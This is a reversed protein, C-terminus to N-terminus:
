ITWNNKAMARVKYEGNELELVLYLTTWDMGEFKPDFGKFHFAVLTGTGKDEMLTNLSNTGGDALRNLAVEPANLYDRSYIRKEFLSKITGTIPDGKGDTNGYVYSQQSTAASAIEAKTFTTKASTTATFSDGDGYLWATHPEFIKYPTLGVTLGKSHIYGSFKAYDKVALAALMEKAATTADKQPATDTDNDAPVPVAVSSNIDQVEQYLMGCYVAIVPVVVLFLIIAGLKSYWTVENFKIM